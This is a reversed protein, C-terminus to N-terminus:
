YANERGMSMALLTIVINLWLVALHIVRFVVALTLAEESGITPGLILAIIGERVGLGSPTILSLFGGIYGAAFSSAILWPPLPWVEASIYYVTLAFSASILAWSLVGILFVKLLLTMSPLHTSKPAFKELWKKLWPRGLIFALVPIFCLATYGWGISLILGGIGISVAATLMLVTNLFTILISDSRSVGRTRLFGVLGAFGWVKGPVMSAIQSINLSHYGDLYAFPYGMGRVMFTFGLISMALGAMILLSLSVLRIASLTTFARQIVVWNNLSWYVLGLLILITILRSLVLRQRKFWQRYTKVMLWVMEAIM